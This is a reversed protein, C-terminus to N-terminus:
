PEIAEGQPIATRRKRIKNLFSKALGTLLPWVKKFLSLTLGKILHGSVYGVPLILVM